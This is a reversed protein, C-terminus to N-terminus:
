SEYVIDFFVLKFVLFLTIQCSAILGYIIYVRHRNMAEIEQNINMILFASSNLIGYLMLLWHFINSPIICLLLVLIFSSLSYGYLCIMQIPMKLVQIPTIRSEFLRLILGLVLPFGLGLSYVIIVAYRVLTLRFIFESKEWNNFYRALNGTSSLLFVITTLIWFPGYL